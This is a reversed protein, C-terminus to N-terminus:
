ALNKKLFAITREWALKASEKGYVEPRTDNMFAHDEDYVFMEMTPIKAKIAEGLAPKVWGDKKAFHAQIPIKVKM